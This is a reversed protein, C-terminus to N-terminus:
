CINKHCIQRCSVASLFLDCTYSYIGTTVCAGSVYQVIQAHHDPIRYDNDWPAFDSDALGYPVYLNDTTM